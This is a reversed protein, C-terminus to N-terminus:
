GRSYHIYGLVIKMFHLFKSHGNITDIGDVAFCSCAAAAFASSALPRFVTTYKAWPTLNKGM